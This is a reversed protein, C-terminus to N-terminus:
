LWRRVRAKYALYTEGFKADLYREERRIVGWEVVALLPVLLVFPWVADVVLAFGVYLGTLSVYLPNRSFLFPGDMVITTAPQYPNINTGARNMTDRGWKALGFAAALVTVGSVRAPIAPLRGIPVLLHLILGAVLTGAYLLPPFGIVGPADVSTNM